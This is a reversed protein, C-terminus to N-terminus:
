LCARCPQVGFYLCLLGPELRTISASLVPIECNHTKSVKRKKIHRERSSSITRMQLISPQVLPFTGLALTLPHSAHGRLVHWLYKVFYLKCFKRQLSLQWVVIEVVVVMFVQQWKQKWSCVKSKFSPIHQRTKFSVNRQHNSLNFIDESMQQATHRRKLFTQAMWQRNQCLQKRATPNNSNRIHKPHSGVPPHVKPFYKRGVCPNTEETSQNRQSQKLTTAQCKEM